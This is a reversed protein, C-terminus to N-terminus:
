ATFKPEGGAVKLAKDMNEDGAAASGLTAHESFWRINSAFEGPHDPVALKQSGMSEHSM